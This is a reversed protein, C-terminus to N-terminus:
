GNVSARVVEAAEVFDRYLRPYENEIGLGELVQAAQTIYGLKAKKSWGPDSEVVSMTNHTKDALKVRKAKLSLRPAHEVQAAKQEKKSLKPDDTLEEVIDAVEAGFEEVLEGYTTDTDELTDHLLAAALTAEDRCGSEALMRSVAMPHTVYPLGEGEKAKRTQGEHKVVAFRAAKFLMETVLTEM